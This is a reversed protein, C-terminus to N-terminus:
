TFYITPLYLLLYLYLYTSLVPLHNTKTVKNTLFRKSGVDVLRLVRCLVAKVTLPSTTTAGTTQSNSSDVQGVSTTSTSTTTLPLVLPTLVRPPTTFHYVKQPMKGLVLSLPLDFPTPHCDPRSDVLVVRGDGTM